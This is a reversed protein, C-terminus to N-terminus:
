GTSPKAFGLRTEFAQRHHHPLQPFEPRQNNGPEPVDKPRIRLGPGLREPGHGEPGVERARFVGRTGQSCDTRAWSRAPGVPARPRRSARGSSRGPGPERRSPTDRRAGVRLRTPSGRDAGPGRSVGRPTRSSDGCRLSPSAAAIRNGLRNRSGLGPVCDTAHPTGGAWM